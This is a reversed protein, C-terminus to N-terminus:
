ALENTMWGPHKRRYVMGELVHPGNQPMDDFGGAELRSRVARTYCRLAVQLLVPPSVEALQPEAL